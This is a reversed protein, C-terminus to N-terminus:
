KTGMTKMLSERGCMCDCHVSEAAAERIDVDGSEAVCVLLLQLL